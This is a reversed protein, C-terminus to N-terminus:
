VTVAEVRVSEGIYPKLAAVSVLDVRLGTIASLKQELALFSSLPIPREFSVLVDLDSDPRADDRVRSFFLALSQTSRQARLDPLAEPLGSHRQDGGRHDRWECRAERVSEITLLAAQIRYSEVPLLSM